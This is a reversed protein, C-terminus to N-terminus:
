GGRHLSVRRIPIPVLSALRRRLGTVLRRLEIACVRFGERHDAHACM